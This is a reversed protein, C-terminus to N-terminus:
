SKVGTPKHPCSQCARWIGVAIPNYTPMPANAKHCDARPTRAGTAPCDIESELDLVRLIFKKPVAQYGSKGASLARSVYSRSVGLRDAVGAKGRPDAAIERAIIDRWVATPTVQADTEM